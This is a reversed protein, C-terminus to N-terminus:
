PMVIRGLDGVEEPLRPMAGGKAVAMQRREIRRMGRRAAGGGRRSDSEGVPQFEFVASGIRIRGRVLQRVVDM